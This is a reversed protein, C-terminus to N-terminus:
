LLRVSLLGARRSVQVGLLVTQRLLLFVSTQNLDKLRYEVGLRLPNPIGESVLALLGLPGLMIFNTTQVVM